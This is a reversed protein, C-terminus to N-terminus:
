HSRPRESARRKRARLLADMARAGWEDPPATGKVMELLWASAEMQSGFARTPFTPGALWNIATFIGRQVPTSLVIGMAALLTPYLQFSRRMREACQKRENATHVPAKRADILIAFREGRLFLHDVRDLYSEFADPNMAAPPLDIRFLPWSSDDYTPQV